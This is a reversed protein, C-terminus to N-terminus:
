GIGVPPAPCPGGPACLTCRDGGVPGAAPLCPVGVAALLRGLLCLPLGVVNWYCGELRAVPRFVPHQIAYAGAKDLPDGSAVYAQIEAEAYPRMTVASVAHGSQAGQTGALRVAVGTMVQHARGRLTHLMAAAEEPDRPKGLITGDRVVLTDAAIVVAGPPAAAAQAKARALAEATEPTAPAGRLLAAEDVAAPAIQFPLGLCALLERRRPSASALVVAVPGTGPLPSKSVSPLAGGPVTGIKEATM